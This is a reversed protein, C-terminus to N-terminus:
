IKDQINFIAQSGVLKIMVKETKRRFSREKVVVYAFTEATPSKFWYYQEYEKMRRVLDDTEGIRVPRKLQDYFVYVAPVQRKRLEAEM